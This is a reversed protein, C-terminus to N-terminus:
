PKGKIQINQVATPETYTPTLLKALSATPLGGEVLVHRKPTISPQNHSLYGEYIYRWTIDHAM